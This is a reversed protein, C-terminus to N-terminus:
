SIILSAKIACPIPYLMESRQLYPAYQNLIQQYDDIAYLCQAHKYVKSGCYRMIGAYDRPCLSGAFHIPSHTLAERLLALNPSTWVDNQIVQWNWQFIKAFDQGATKVGLPIDAYYEDWSKANDKNWLKKPVLGWFNVAKWFADMSLGQHTTGALRAIYPVSLEIYGQDNIYSNNELLAKFESNQPFLNNKYFYNLIAEITHVGSQSVCDLADGFAYYQGEYPKSLYPLWNGDMAISPTYVEDGGSVTPLVGTPKSFFSKIFNIIKQLISMNKFNLPLLSSPHKVANSTISGTKVESIPCCLSM